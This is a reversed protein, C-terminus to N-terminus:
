HVKAFPVFILLFLLVAHAGLVSDLVVRNTSETICRVVLKRFGVIRCCDM